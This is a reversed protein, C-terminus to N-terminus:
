GGMAFTVVKEIDPQYRVPIEQIDELAMPPEIISILLVNSVKEFETKSKANIDYVEGFTLERYKVVDLGFLAETKEKTKFM